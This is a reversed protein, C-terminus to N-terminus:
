CLNAAITRENFLLGSTAAHFVAVKNLSMELLSKSAANYLSARRGTMKGRRRPDESLTLYM